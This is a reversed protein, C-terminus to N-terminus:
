SVTCAINGIVQQRQEFGDRFALGIERLNQKTGDSEAIM